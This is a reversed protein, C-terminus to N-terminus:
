AASPQEIVPPTGTCLIFRSTKFIPKTPRKSCRLQYAFGVNKEINLELIGTMHRSLDVSINNNISQGNTGTGGGRPTFTLHLYKEKNALKTIRVVDAVSKPFLIAQPLQQYVSNDTALSLRDAYNSAIDGEFHQKQLESLYDSVVNNFNHYM